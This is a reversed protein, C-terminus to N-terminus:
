HTRDGRGLACESNSNNNRTQNNNKRQNVKEFVVGDVVVATWSDKSAQLTWVERNRRETGEEPPNSPNGRVRM